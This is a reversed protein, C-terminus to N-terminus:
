EMFPGFIIHDSATAETSSIRYPGSLPTAVAPGLPSLMVLLDIGFSSDKDADVITPNRDSARGAPWRNVKRCATHLTPTSPPLICVLDLAAVWERNLVALDQEQITEGIGLVEYSPPWAGNPVTLVTSVTERPPENFFNRVDLENREARPTIGSRMAVIMMAGFAQERTNCTM